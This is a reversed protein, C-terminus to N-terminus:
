NCYCFFYSLSSVKSSRQEELKKSDSSSVKATVTAFSSLAAVGDYGCTLALTCFNILWDNLKSGPQLGDITKSLDKFLEEKQDKSLNDIM